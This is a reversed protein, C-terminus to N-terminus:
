RTETPAATPVLRRLTREITPLLETVPLDGAAFRVVLAYLVNRLIVLVDEAYQPELGGLLALIGPETAAFGQIHLREGGPGFRARMFAEAMRPNEQWPEFIRRFQQMLADFLPQDVSPEALPRYAHSEMWAEVAALVLQDRSEFHKYITTMSVRAQPAVGALQVADTGGTTIMETVVALIRETASGDVTTQVTAASTV